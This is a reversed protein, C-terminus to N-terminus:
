RGADPGRPAGPDASGPPEPESLAGAERGSPLQRITVAIAAITMLGFFAAVGPNGSIIFIAAGFAFFYSLKGSNGQTDTQGPSRYASPM